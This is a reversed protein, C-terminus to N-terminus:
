FFQQSVWKPATMAKTGKEEVKVEKAEGKAAATCMTAPTTPTTAPSRMMAM